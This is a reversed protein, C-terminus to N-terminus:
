FQSYIVLMSTARLLRRSRHVREMWSRALDPCHSELATYFCTALLSTKKQVVQSQWYIRLLFAIVERLSLGYLMPSAVLDSELHLQFSHAYPVAPTQRTKSGPRQDTLQM